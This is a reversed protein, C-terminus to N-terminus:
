VKRYTNYGLQRCVITAETRYTRDDSIAGWVGSLFIEVRGEWLYGGGVLRIDGEKIEEGLHYVHIIGWFDEHMVCTVYVCYIQLDFHLCQAHSALTIYLQTPMYQVICISYVYLINM